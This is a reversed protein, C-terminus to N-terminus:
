KSCEKEGLWATPVYQWEYMMAQKIGYKAEVADLFKLFDDKTWTGFADM